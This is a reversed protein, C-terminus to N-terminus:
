GSSRADHADPTDTADHTDTADRTGRAGRAGDADTDRGVHVSASRARRLQLLGVFAAAALLGAVLGVMVDTVLHGDLAGSTVHGVVDLGVVDFALLSSPIM